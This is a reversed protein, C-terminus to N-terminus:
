SDLLKKIAGFSKLAPFGVYRYPETKDQINKSRKVIQRQM